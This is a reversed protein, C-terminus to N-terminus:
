NQLAGAVGNLSDLKVKFRDVQDSCHMKNCSNIIYTSLPAYSEVAPLYASEEKLKSWSKTGNLWSSVMVTKGSSDTQTIWALIAKGGPDKKGTDSLIQLAIDKKEEGIFREMGSVIWVCHGCEAEGLQLICTPSPTLLEHGTVGDTAIRQSLQECVPVDPPKTCATLLICALLLKHM